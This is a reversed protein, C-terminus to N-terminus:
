ADAPRSGELHSADVWRIRFGKSRLLKEIQVPALRRGRMELKSFHIEILITQLTKSLLMNNMGQLVEEEFGEVDVKVVNPVHGLRQCITDGSSIAVPVAKLNNRRIEEESALHNQVSQEALILYGNEDTAGLAINEITVWKCNQLRQRITESSEFCPEFAIVTGEPGVWQSFIETYLGVNAGVDWVTDGPRIAQQLARHFHEEYSRRPRLRHLFHTMGTKRAFSRAQILLSNM